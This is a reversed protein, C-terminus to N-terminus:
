GQHFHLTEEEEEDEEDEDKENGDEDHTHIIPVCPFVHVVYHLPNKGEVSICLRSVSSM